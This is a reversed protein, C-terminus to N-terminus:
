RLRIVVAGVASVSGAAPLRRKTGDRPSTLKTSRRSAASASRISPIVNTTKTSVSSTGLLAAAVFRPSQNVYFRMGDSPGIRGADDIGRAALFYNGDSVDDTQMCSDPTAASM